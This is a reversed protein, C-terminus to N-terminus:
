ASKRENLVYSEIRNAQDGVAKIDLKLDDMKSRGIGQGIKLDAIGNRLEQVQESTPLHRMREDIVNIRDHAQHALRRSNEVDKKTAYRGNMIVMGVLVCAQAVLLGLEALKIWAEASM